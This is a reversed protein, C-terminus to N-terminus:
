RNDDAVRRWRRLKQSRLDSELDDLGNEQDEKEEEEERLKKSYKKSREIKGM